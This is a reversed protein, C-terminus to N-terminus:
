KRGGTGGPSRSLQLALHNSPDRALAASLHRQVLEPHRLTHFALAALANANASGGSLDIARKIERLVLDRSSPTRVASVVGQPRFPTLLRFEHARVYPLTEETEQVFIAVDDDFYVLKWDKTNTLRIALHRPDDYSDRIDISFTRIGYRRTVQDLSLRNEEAALYDEWVTAPYIDLRGDIFVKTEPGLHFLMYGGFGYTNFMNAPPRNRMLFETSFCPLMRAEIGFLPLGGGMNLVESYQMICVAAGAAATIMPGRMGRMARQMVGAYRALFVPIAFCALGMQRRQYFGFAFWFVITAVHWKKV